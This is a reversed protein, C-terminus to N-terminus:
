AASMDSMFPLACADLVHAVQGRAHRVDRDLVSGAVVGDILYTALREHEKAIGAGIGGVGLGAFQDLVGPQRLCRRAPRRRPEAGMGHRSLSVVAM